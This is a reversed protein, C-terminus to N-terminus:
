ATAAAQEAAHRAAVDDAAVGFALMSEGSEVSWLWSAGAQETVRISLGRTSATLGDDGHTWPLALDAATV